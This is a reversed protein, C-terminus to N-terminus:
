LIDKNRMIGIVVLVFDILLWAGFTILFHQGTVLSSIANSSRPQIIIKIDYPLLMEVSDFIYTITYLLIVPAVIAIYRNKFKLIMQMALIFVSFIAIAISNFFSYAVAMTIPSSKYLIYGLTGMNPILRQYQETIPADISLFLFTVVLNISLLLMYFIFVFLFTSYVKSFLYKYKSNRIILFQAMSSKQEYLYILGTTLVPFVWFLTNYVQSGWSSSHMLLWYQFSNFGIIQYVEPHRCQEWIVSIPDFVMVVLIILFLVQTIRSRFMKKIDSMIYRYMNEDGCSCIPNIVM